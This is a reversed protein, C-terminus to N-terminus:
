EFGVIVSSYLVYIVQATTQVCLIYRDSEIRHGAVPIQASVQMVLIGYSFLALINIRYLNNFLTLFHLSISNFRLM